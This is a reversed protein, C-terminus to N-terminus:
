FYIFVFQCSMPFIVNITTPTNGTRLTCIYNSINLPQYLYIARIFPACETCCSCYLKKGPAQMMSPHGPRARQANLVRRLLLPLNDRVFAMFSERKRRERNSGERAIREARVSGEVTHTHKSTVLCLGSASSIIIHM